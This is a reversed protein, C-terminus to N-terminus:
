YTTVRACKTGHARIQCGRDCVAAAVVVCVIIISDGHRPLQTCLLEIVARVQCDPCPAGFTSLFFLGDGLVVQNFHRGVQAVHSATGMDWSNRSLFLCAM